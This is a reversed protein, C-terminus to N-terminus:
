EQKVFISITIKGSIPLTSGLAEATGNSNITATKKQIIGTARDLIIKGVAASTINTAVQRGMIESRIMNVSISKFDVTLTSDGIESLTYSTASTEDASSTTDTWTDGVGVEWAPMVKFFSATGKQPPYIISTVDRLMNSIIMLRQDQQSLEIKSPITMRTKGTTDIVIDYKKSIIETFQKGFQSERDKAIDSDYSRKQGMGDFRFSLRQVTHRLTTSNDTANTVKYMHTVSGETSFDIAQNATQQAMTSTVEMNITLTNGQDFKLKGSVKQGFATSTIILLFLGPILKRM